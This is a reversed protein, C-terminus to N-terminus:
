QWSFLTGTSKTEVGGEVGLIFLLDIGVSLSARMWESAVEAIDDPLGAGVDETGFEGIQFDM